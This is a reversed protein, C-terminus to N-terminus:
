IVNVFKLQGIIGQVVGRVMRKSKRNKKRKSKKTKKRKHKKNKGKM